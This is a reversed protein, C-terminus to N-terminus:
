GRNNLGSKSESRDVIDQLLGLLRKGSNLVDNLNCRQEDNIKGPIEELMLEAFGIIIYLQTRIDHSLKSVSAPEAPTIRYSDRDVLRWHEAPKKGTVSSEAAKKYGIARDVRSAM